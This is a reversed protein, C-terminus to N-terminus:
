KWPKNVIGNREAQDIVNLSNEVTQNARNQFAMFAIVAIGLIMASIVVAEISVYGKSDRIKRIM